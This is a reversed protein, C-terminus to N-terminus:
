SIFETNIGNITQPTKLYRMSQKQIIIAELEYM